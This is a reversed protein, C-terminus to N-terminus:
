LRDPARVRNVAPTYGREALVQRMGRFLHEPREVAEDGCAIRGGLQTEVTHRPTDHMFVRQARELRSEEELLVETRRLIVGAAPIAVAETDQLIWGSAAGNRPVADPIIGFGGVREGAEHASDNGAAREAPGAIDADIGHLPAREDADHDGIGANREVAYRHQREVARVLRARADVTRCRWSRSAAGTRILCRHPATASGTAVATAPPPASPSAPSHTASRRMRTTGC